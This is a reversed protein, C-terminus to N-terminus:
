LSIFFIKAHRKLAGTPLGQSFLGNELPYLHPMRQYSTQTNKSVQLQTKTGRSVVELSCSISASTYSEPVHLLVGAFVLHENMTPDFVPWRRLDLM